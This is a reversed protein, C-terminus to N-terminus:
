GAGRSLGDQLPWGGSFMSPTRVKKPKRFQTFFYMGRWASDARGIELRRLEADGTSKPDQVLVSSKLVQLVFEDSGWHQLPRVNELGEDEDSISRVV